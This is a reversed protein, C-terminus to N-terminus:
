KEVVTNSVNELWPTHSFCFNYITSNQSIKTRSEIILHYQSTHFDIFFGCLVAGRSAKIDRPLVATPLQPSPSPEMQSLRPKTCPSISPGHHVMTFGRLHPTKKPSFEKLTWPDLFSIRSYIYIYMTKNLTKISKYNYYTGKNSCTEARHVKQKVQSTSFLFLM